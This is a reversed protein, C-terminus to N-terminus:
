EGGKWKQNNREKRSSINEQEERRKPWPETLKDQGASGQMKDEEKRGGVKECHSSLEAEVVRDPQKEGLNPGRESTLKRKRSMKVGGGETGEM